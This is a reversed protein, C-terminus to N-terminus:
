DADNHEVMLRCKTASIVTIFVILPLVSWVGSSWHKEYHPGRGLSSVFSIEEPPPGINILLSTSDINIRFPWMFNCM